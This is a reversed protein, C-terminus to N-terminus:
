LQRDANFALVELLLLVQLTLVAPAQQVVRLGRQVSGTWIAVCDRMVAAVGLQINVAADQIRRRRGVLLGRLCSRLAMGDGVLDIKGLGSGRNVSLLLLM